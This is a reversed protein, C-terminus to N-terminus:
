KRSKLEYRQKRLVFLTILWLLAFVGWAISTGYNKVEKRCVRCEGGCDVDEEGKDIDILNNYCFAPQKYESQVLLVRLVPALNDVIVYAVTQENDERILSVGREGEGLLGADLAEVQVIAKGNNISVVGVSIDSLGDNTIDFSAREGVKVQARQVKSLIEVIAYDKGIERVGISHDVGGIQIKIRANEGLERMISGRVRLDFDLYSFTERWGFQSLINSISTTTEPEEPPLPEPVVLIPIIPKIRPSSIVCTRTETFITQPADECYCERSQVLGTFEGQSAIIGVSPVTCDGYPTCVYNECPLKPVINPAVVGEGNFVIHATEEEPVEQVDPEELPPSTVVISKTVSAFKEGRYFLSAEINAYHRPAVFGFKSLDVDIHGLKDSPFGKVLEAYSTGVRYQEGEKIIYAYNNDILEDRVRVEKISLKKSKDISLYEDSGFRVSLTMTDQPEAIVNTTPGGSGGFPTGGGQIVEFGRGGRGSIVVDELLLVIEVKPRFKGEGVQQLVEEPLVDELRKEKVYTNVAMVVYSDLPVVGVKGTDYGFSGKITDGAEIKEIEIGTVLGVLSSKYFGALVFFIALLLFGIILYVKGTNM